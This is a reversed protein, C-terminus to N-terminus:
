TASSDGAAAFLAGRYGTAVAKQMVLIVAPGPILVLVGVLAVFALYHGM